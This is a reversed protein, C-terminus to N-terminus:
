RRVSAVAPPADARKISTDRWHKLFLVLERKGSYRQIAEMSDGAQPVQEPVIRDLEILLESAAQPFKM